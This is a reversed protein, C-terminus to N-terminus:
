VFAISKKPYKSNINQNKFIISYIFEILEFIPRIIFLLALLTISTSATISSAQRYILISNYIENSHEIM